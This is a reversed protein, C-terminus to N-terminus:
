AVFGQNWVSGTQESKSIEIEEDAALKAPQLKGTKALLM